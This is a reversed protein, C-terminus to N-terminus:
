EERNEKNTVNKKVGVLARVYARVCAFVSHILYIEKCGYAQPGQCCGGQWTESCVRVCTQVNATVKVYLSTTQSTAPLKNDIM